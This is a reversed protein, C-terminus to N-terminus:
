LAAKMRSVLLFFYFPYRNSFLHLFFSKSSFDSKLIIFFCTLVYKFTTSLDICFLLFMKHSSVKSYFKCPLRINTQSKLSVHGLLIMGELIANEPNSFYNFLRIFNVEEGVQTDNYDWYMFHLIFFGGVLSIWQLFYIILSLIHHLIIKSWRPWGFPVLGTQKLQMITAACEM